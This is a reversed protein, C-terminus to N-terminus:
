ALRGRYAGSFITHINEIILSQHADNAYAAKTPSEFKHSTDPPPSATLVPETLEVFM